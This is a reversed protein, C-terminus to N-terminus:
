SNGWDTRGATLDAFSWATLIASPSPFPRLFDRKNLFKRRNQRVSGRQELLKNPLDGRLRSSLLQWNSIHCWKSSKNPRDKPSSDTFSRAISLFCVISVNFFNLLALSPIAFLIFVIIWSYRSLYIQLMSLHIQLIKTRFEYKQSHMQFLSIETSFQRLYYFTTSLATLKSIKYIKEHAYFITLSM